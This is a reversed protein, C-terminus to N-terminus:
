GAGTPVVAVSGTGTGGSVNVGALSVPPTSPTNSWMNGGNDGSPSAALYNNTSSPSTTNGSTNSSVPVTVSIPNTGNSPTFTANHTHIPMQATTLTVSETGRKTGTKITTNYNIGVPARGRLDPLNFNVNQTGGYVTGLLSYLAQNQAVQLLQGNAELTNIPCYQAATTCISGIYDEDSGCAFASSAFSLAALASLYYRKM